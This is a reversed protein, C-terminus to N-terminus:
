NQQAPWFCKFLLQLAHQLLNFYTSVLQLMNSYIPAHQLLNFYIQGATLLNPYTRYISAPPLLNSSTCTCHSQLLRARLIIPVFKLLAEVNRTQPSLIIPTKWNLKPFSSVVLIDTHTFKRFGLKFPSYGSETVHGVQIPYWGKSIQTNIQPFRDRIAM